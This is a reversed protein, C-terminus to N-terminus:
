CCLMAIRVKLPAPVFTNLLAGAVSPRSASNATQYCSQIVSPVDTLQKRTITEEMPGAQSRVASRFLESEKCVIVGVIQVAAARATDDQFMM